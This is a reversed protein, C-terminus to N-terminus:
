IRERHYMLLASKKLIHMCAVSNRLKRAEQYNGMCNGAGHDTARQGQSKRDESQNGKEPQRGWSQDVRQMTEQGRIQQGNLRILIRQNEQGM